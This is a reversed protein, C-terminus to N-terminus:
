FTNFLCVNSSWAGENLIILHLDEDEKRKKTKKKRIGKM